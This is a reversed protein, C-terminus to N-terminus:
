VAARADASDGLVQQALIELLAIQNVLTALVDILSLHYHLVKGLHFVVVGLPKLVESGRLLVGADPELPHDALYFVVVEDVQEHQGLSLQGGVSGYDDLVVHRGLAEHDAFVVERHTATLRQQLAQERLSPELHHVLGGLRAEGSFEVLDNQKHKLGLSHM